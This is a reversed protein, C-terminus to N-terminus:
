VGLERRIAACLPGALIRSLDIVAIGSLPGKVAMGRFGANMRGAFPKDWVPRAPCDAADSPRIFGTAARSSQDALSVM